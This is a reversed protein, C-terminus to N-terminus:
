LRYKKDFEMDSLNLYTIGDIIGLICPIWTFSFILYLFGQKNENLYFKHIGFVGLCIALIGATTRNKSTKKVDYQRCGCKPCIEAEKFIKEGCKYCFKMEEM